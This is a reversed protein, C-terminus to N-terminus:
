LILSKFIAAWAPLISIYVITRQCGALEEAGGAPAVGRAAVSGSRADGSNQGMQKTRTPWSKENAAKAVKAAEAM